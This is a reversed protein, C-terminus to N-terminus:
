SLYGQQASCLPDLLTFRSFCDGVRCHSHRHSSHCHTLRDSIAVEPIGPSRESTDLGVFCPPEAQHVEYKGRFFGSDLSLEV